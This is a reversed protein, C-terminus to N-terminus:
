SEPGETRGGPVGGEVYPPDDLGLANGFERAFAVAREWVEPDLGREGDVHIGTVEVDEGSTETYVAVGEPLLEQYLAFADEDDPDAPLYTKAFIEPKVPYKEGEVGRVIVDGPDAQIDGEVTEVTTEEDVREVAEVEVPLKRFKM